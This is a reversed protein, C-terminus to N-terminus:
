SKSQDKIRGNSESQRVFWATIVQTFILPISIAWHAGSTGIKLVGIAAIAGIILYAITPSQLTSKSLSAEVGVWKTCYARFSDEKRPNPQPLQEDPKTNTAM